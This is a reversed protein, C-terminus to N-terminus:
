PALSFFHRKITRLRANWALSAASRSRKEWAPKTHCSVRGRLGSPLDTSGFGRSGRCRPLRSGAKCCPREQTPWTEPRCRHRMRLLDSSNRVPRPVSCLLSCSQLSGISRIDQKTLSGRLAEPQTQRELINTSTRGKGCAGHSRKRPSCWCPPHLFPPDSDTRRLLWVAGAQLIVQSTIAGRFTKAKLEKNNSPASDDAIGMPFPQSAAAPEHMQGRRLPWGRVQLCDSRQVSGLDAPTWHHDIPRHGLALVLCVHGLCLRLLWTRPRALFRSSPHNHGPSPSKTINALSSRDAGM